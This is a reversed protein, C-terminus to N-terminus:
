QHSGRSDPNKFSSFVESQYSRNIRKSIIEEDSTFDQLQLVTQDLDNEKQQQNKEIQFDALEQKTSAGQKSNSKDTIQTQNINDIQKIKYTRQPLLRLAMTELLKNQDELNSFMLVNENDYQVPEEEYDFLQDNIGFIEEIELEKLDKNQGEEMYNQSRFIHDDSLDDSYVDVSIQQEKYESQSKKTNFRQTKQSEFELKPEDNVGAKNNKNQKKSILLLNQRQIQDYDSAIKLINKIQKSQEEEIEVESIQEQSNSNQESFLFSKQLLQIQSQNLSDIRYAQQNLKLNPSGSVKKNQFKALTKQKIEPIYKNQFYSKSYQIKDQYQKKVKSNISYQILSSNSIEKNELDLNNRNALLIASSMLSSPVNHFKSEKLFKDKELIKNLQYSLPLENNSLNQKREFNIDLQSDETQMTQIRSEQDRYYHAFNSDNDASDKQQQIKTSSYSLRKLRQKQKQKEFNETQIRQMLKPNVLQKIQERNLHIMLREINNKNLKLEGKRFLLKIQKLQGNLQQYYNINQKDIDYAIIEKEFKTQKFCLCLVLYIKPFKERFKAKGEEYMKLSWYLFFFLNSSLILVFFLRQFGNSLSVSGRAYDPNEEIWIKPKNLIFFIGCYITIMSTILSLTELDNLIQTNFPQKKFNIMLFVILAFFIILAQAIIGFNSVFVSTFIILIKRYMIVIEWYFYEKRYGRYLFGYKQRTDFNELKMRQKILIVLAFFPIGLGWVIICPLAVFYSYFTHEPSWCIIELDDYVRLQGDVEKCKFDNFSFTVLSPHVLFLLIVLSSMIKGGVEVLNKMLYSYINWILYCIIALLFPLLAIIILKQFFIRSMQSGKSEGGTDLFCDFSFVQTTQTAVQKTTTFFSIIQQSWYFNFSATMLILQFHNLLIKLYISTVNNIDQAGRLTQRIMLVVLIVIAIFISILRLINLSPDPCIACQYDKDRSYGNICDACLIGQYGNLCDGLLNNQPPIMGLCAPEFLCKSFVKSSNSKRWFGPKPGIEAGGNCIAKETPCIECFGPSSMKVLSFSEECKQCKGVATFQEGIECERLQVKLDLDLSSKGIAEMKDKNSKKSQDIGDTTIVLKYPSGPNGVIQIQNIIAIGGIIDFSLTGELIPPYLIQKADLNTTEVDVRVKSKFDSGVIQGYQDKLSMYVIPISGGSRQQEIQSLSDQLLRLQYDDQTQLGLLIM